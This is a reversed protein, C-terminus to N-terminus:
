EVAQIGAAPEVFPGGFPYTGYIGRDKVPHENLFLLQPSILLSNIFLAVHAIQICLSEVLSSSQLCLPLM